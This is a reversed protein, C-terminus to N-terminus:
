QIIISLVKNKFEEIWKKETLIKYNYETIPRIKDLIIQQDINCLFEVQKWAASWRQENNEINDYNEDIIGDFTKFGLSKLNKLFYQGSFMVFLRKAMISKATKETFYNYDNSFGTEAIISYCSKSFIKTPIIQGAMCFKGYYKCAITSNNFDELSQLYHTDPETYWSESAPKGYSLLICNNYKFKNYKAFVFDRHVRTTGLLADFYFPKQEYPLTKELIHDLNQYLNVNEEFWIGYFLLNLNHNYNLIVPRCWFINHLNKCENMLNIHNQRMESDIIFVYKATNSLEKFHFLSFHNESSSIFFFVIKNTNELKKFKEYNVVLKVKLNLSLSTLKKVNNTFVYYDFNM